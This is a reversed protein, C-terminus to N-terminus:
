SFSETHGIVNESVHCKLVECLKQFIKLIFCLHFLSVYMQLRVRKIMANEEFPSNASNCRQTVAVKNCSTVEHPLKPTEM